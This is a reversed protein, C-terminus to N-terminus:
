RLQRDSRQATEAVSDLERLVLMQETELENIRARLAAANESALAQRGATSPSQMWGSLTFCVPQRSCILGSTQSTRHLRADRMCHLLWVLAQATLVAAECSKFATKQRLLCLDPIWSPTNTRPSPDGRHLVQDLLLSSITLVTESRITPRRSSGTQRAARSPAKANRTPRRLQSCVVRSMASHLMRSGARLCVKQQIRRRWLGSERDKGQMPNTISSPKVQGVDSHQSVVHKSESAGGELVHLLQTYPELTLLDQSRYLLARGSRAVSRHRVCLVRATKSLVALALKSHWDHYVGLTDLM